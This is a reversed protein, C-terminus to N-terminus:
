GSWWSGKGGGNREGGCRRERGNRTRSGRRTRAVRAAHLRLHREICPRYGRLAGSGHRHAMRGSLHWRLARIGGLAPPIFPDQSNDVKVAVLNANESGDFKVFSTIDFAFATYGGRHEGVFAGNVYVDSVENAGEFYLFIRKGRLADDLHLEKRYWGIGRRYSADDDFPDHANWTHPISVTRWGADSV